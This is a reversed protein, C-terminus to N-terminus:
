LNATTGNDRKVVDINNYYTHITIIYQLLLQVKPVNKQGALMLLKIFLVEEKLYKM